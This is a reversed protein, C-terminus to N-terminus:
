YTDLRHTGDFTMKKEAKKQPSSTEGGAGDPDEVSTVAADGEM